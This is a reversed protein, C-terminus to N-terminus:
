FNIVLGITHTSLIPTIKNMVGIKFTDTSIPYVNIEVGIIPVIGFNHSVELWYSDFDTNNRWNDPNLRYAGLMLGLEIHKNYMGAAIGVGFMSSGICDEGIFLSQKSYVGKKYSIQSLILMDNAVMSGSKNVPNKYNYSGLSSYHNTIAGLEISYSDSALSDDTILLIILIILLLVKM